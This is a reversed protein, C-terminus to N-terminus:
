KQCSRDSKHENEDAIEEITPSDDLEDGLPPEYAKQLQQLNIPKEYRNCLTQLLDKLPLDSYVFFFELAEGLLHSQLASKWAEEVM